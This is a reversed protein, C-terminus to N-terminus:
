FYRERVIIVDGPAVRTAQQAALRNNPPGKRQIYFDDADARYTFGGAIAVANIVNMGDVYPYHGPNRVEGVIYFPRYSLIELSVDPSQLYQAFKKELTKRLEDSTKGSAPIRGILSLTLSGDGAILYEGSLDPENFVTIRIRDGSGLRYEAEDSAIPTSAVTRPASGACAVLLGAFVLAAACRVATFLGDGRRIARFRRCAALHVRNGPLPPFISPTGM